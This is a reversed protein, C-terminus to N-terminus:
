APAREVDSAGRPRRAEDGFHAVAVGLLLRVHEDALRYWTRRGRRTAAVVRAARLLALAHSAASESMGAGRALDSVCREPEEDLLLLLRLRSPDGLLAFVLALSDVELSGIGADAAGRGSSRGVATETGM